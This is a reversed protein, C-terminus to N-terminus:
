EAFPQRPAASSHDDVPSWIACKRKSTINCISHVTLDDFPPFRLIGTSRLRSSSASVPTYCEAVSPLNEIRLVSYRWCCNNWRNKQFHFLAGICHRNSCTENLAPIGFRCVLGIPTRSRLDTKLWTPLQSHLM